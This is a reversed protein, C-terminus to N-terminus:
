CIANTTKLVHIDFTPILYPILLNLLTRSLTLRSARDSSEERGHGLHNEHSGQHGAEDGGEPVEEPEGGDDLHDDDEGDVLEDEAATVPPEVDRGDGCRPVELVIEKQSM